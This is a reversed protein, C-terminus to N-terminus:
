RVDRENTLSGCQKLKMGDCIPLKLCLFIPIQASSLKANLMYLINHAYNLPGKVRHPNIVHEYPM